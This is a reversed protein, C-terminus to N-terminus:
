SRGELRQHVQQALYIMADAARFPQFASVPDDEMNQMTATLQTLYEFNSLLRRVALQQPDADFQDDLLAAQAAHVSLGDRYSYRLWSLGDFVEAGFHFYLPSLLPDLSGFLHIPLHPATRDLLARLRALNTLRDMLTDGLEVETVGVLDFGDFPGLTATHAFDHIFGRYPKLLLDKAANVSALHERQQQGQDDYDLEQREPPDFSTAVRGPREPLASLVQLHDLSIYPRRRWGPSPPFTPEFAAQLEYGGSDVFLVATAPLQTEPAATLLASSLEPIADTHLDYASVLVATPVAPLVATVLTDNESVGNVDVEFGKSSVSPVLL